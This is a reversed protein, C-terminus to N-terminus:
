RNEGGRSLNLRGIGSGPAFINHRSLPVWLTILPMALTGIGPSLVIKASGGVFVALKFYFYACFRPLPLLMVNATQYKQKNKSIIFCILFMLVRKSLNINIFSLLLAPNQPRFGLRQLGPPNQPCIGQRQPSKVAKKKLFYANKFM